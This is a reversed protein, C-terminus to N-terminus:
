TRVPAGDLLFGDTLAGKHFSLRAAREAEEQAEEETEYDDGWDLSTDEYVACRIEDALPFAEARSRLTPPRVNRDWRWPMSNPWPLRM